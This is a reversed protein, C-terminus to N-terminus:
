FQLMTFVLVHSMMMMVMSVMVILSLIMKLSYTNLLNMSILIFIQRKMLLGSHVYIHDLYKLDSYYKDKIKKLLPLCVRVNYKNKDIAKPLAYVVDALGGTKIFPLSEFSAFLIQKM